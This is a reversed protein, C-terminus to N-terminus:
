QPRGGAKQEGKQENKHGEKPVADTNATGSTIAASSAASSAASAGAPGAGDPRKGGRHKGGPAAATPVVRQAMVQVKMGDTLRDTGDVVVSEGVEVGKTVTVSKADAAGTEIQRLTVSNDPKAVYVYPGNTGQQVATLPILTVNDLKKTVLRINVFQNPFLSDDDNTFEAKLKITGTTTDIQNDVSKLKGTALMRRNDASWAEAILPETGKMGRIVSPLSQQPVSFVVSIPNVENIVVLGNADSTQVLNGVDVQRLGVKGAIPATVKTYGLQLQAQAIAAADSAVTAQNQAVLAAQTDVQQSAISDQSLLTKYRVLDLKAVNLQALDKDYQAKASDRQLQFTRPDIQALVQGAKVSQGEQFFIQELRGSVQVRVIATNRATVTGLANVSIDMSGSVAPSAVVTTIGRQRGGPGSPGGPGGPGRGAQPAGEATAGTTGTAAPNRWHNWGFWAAAILAIVVLLWLFWKGNSASGPKKGKSLDNNM